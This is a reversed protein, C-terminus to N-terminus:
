ITFKTTPRIPTLSSSPNEPFPNGPVKRKLFPYGSILVSITDPIADGQKQFFVGYRGPM